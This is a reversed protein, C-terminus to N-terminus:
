RDPHGNNIKILFVVEVRKSLQINSLVSQVVKVFIGANLSVVDRYSFLFSVVSNSIQSLLLIITYAKEVVRPLLIIIIRVPVTVVMRM